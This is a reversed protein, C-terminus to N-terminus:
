KREALRHNSYRSDGTVEKSVFPPIDAQENENELEIEALVLGENKGHFVDIEWKKGAYEYFLSTKELVKGGCMNDIIDVADDFPIQYEFEARTLESIRYKLTIYAESGWTRVRVVKGDSTFVYGQRIDKEDYALTTDFENVLFKRETEKNM